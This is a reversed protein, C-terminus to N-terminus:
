REARGESYCRLLLVGGCFAEVQEAQWQSTIDESGRPFVLLCPTVGHSVFWKQSVDFSQTFSRALVNLLTRYGLAVLGIAPSHGLQQIFRQRRLDDTHQTVLPMIEHSGSNIGFSDRGLKQLVRIFFLPM